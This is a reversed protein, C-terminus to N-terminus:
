GLQVSQAPDGNQQHQGVMHLVRYHQAIPSGPALGTLVPHSEKENETTIEDSRSEDLTRNIQFAEVYAAEEAKHWRRPSVQCEQKQNM